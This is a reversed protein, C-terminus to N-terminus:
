FNDKLNRLYAFTEEDTKDKMNLLLKIDDSDSQFFLNLEKEEKFYSYYIDTKTDAKVLFIRTFNQKVHNNSFVGFSKLKRKNIKSIKIMKSALDNVSCKKFLFGNKNNIVILTNKDRGNYIAKKDNEDILKKEETAIAPSAHNLM